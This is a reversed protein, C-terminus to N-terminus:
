ENTGIRFFEQLGGVSGWGAAKRRQLSVKAASNAKWSRGAAYWQAYVAEKSSIAQKPDRSRLGQIEWGM